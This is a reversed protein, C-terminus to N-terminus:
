RNYKLNREHMEISTVIRIKMDGAVTIWNGLFYLM